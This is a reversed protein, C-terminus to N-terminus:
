ILRSKNLNRSLYFLLYTFVFTRIPSAVMSGVNLMFVLSFSVMLAFFVYKYPLYEEKRAKIEFYFALFLFLTSYIGIGFVDFHFLGAISLPVIQDRYLRHGYIKNNFVFNSKHSDSTIKSLLPVNQFLDNILFKGYEKNVIGEFADVGVAVNGPGAFYANLSSTTIIDNIGYDNNGRSFKGISTVIIISSFITLMVLNIARKTKKSAFGIILFYFPLIFLIISFRSFGVIFSGAFCMLLILLSIKVNRTLKKSKLIVSSILLIVAIKFPNFLLGGISSVEVDTGDNIQLAYEQLNWIPIVKALFGSILIVVFMLVVALYLWYNKSVFIINISNKIHKFKHNQYLFLIFIFILEAIMFLIANNGNQSLNGNGLDNGASIGIPILCYRIIAQIYFISLVYTRKLNRFFLNGLLSFLLLSLPLLSINSYYLNHNGVVCVTSSFLCILIIIKYM